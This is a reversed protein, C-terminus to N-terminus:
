NEDAMGKLLGEPTAEVVRARIGLATEVDGVSADDLFVEGDKLAVDPILLLDHKEAVDAMSKIVDRGTLLGTVTVSAGFFTNEVPVLTIDVHCKKLRETFQKLFPYFSVATFTLFKRKSPKLDLKMRRAKSVFSPVMGVGNEIQPLEGFDKLPPFPREARIYLEDSAYVVPEGHKKRFRKQFAEITDLAVEADEKGVPAPKKKGHETLGVPVVAISAVYPYLSHLDRITKKLVEGDNIGPCLVIQTHMRIKNDRLFRLEKMIDPAKPNGLMRNRTARDTAHVSIYLPSLRQSVIRKRDERDLGTLTVYNGYLFSMRYDEDRVYLTKRLGRPLQSVFCFICKNRCTRVKFHALELGPNEEGPHLKVSFKKGRRSLVMDLEPENGYFMYDIFDNIKHGDISLLVDGKEIGARASPSEPAVRVIPTGRSSAM